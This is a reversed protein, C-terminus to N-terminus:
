CSKNFKLDPIQAEAEEEIVSLDSENIVISSM